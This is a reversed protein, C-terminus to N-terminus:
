SHALVTLTKKLKTQSLKPRSYKCHLMGKEICNVIVMERHINECQKPTFVRLSDLTQVFFLIQSHVNIHVNADGTSHPPPARLGKAQLGDLAVVPWWQGRAPRM